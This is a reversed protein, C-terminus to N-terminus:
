VLRGIHASEGYGERRAYLISTYSLKSLFNSRLGRTSIVAHAILPPEKGMNSLYWFNPTRAWIMIMVTNIKAM